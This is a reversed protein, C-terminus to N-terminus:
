KATRFKWSVRRPVGDETLLAEVQVEVDPELARAPTLVVMGKPTSLKGAVEAGAATVKMSAQFSQYPRTLTISIPVDAPVNEQGAHPYFYVPATVAHKPHVVNMWGRGVVFSCGIGVSHLSPALVLERYGVTGLFDDITTEPLPALLSIQSQRAIDRGAETFGPLSPDEQSFPMKKDRHIEFNQAVYEAHAQCARSRDVDLQVPALQAGARLQNLRQLMTRAAEAPEPGAAGTTFSWVKQFPKGDIRGALRVRYMRHAALPQKPILCVTTGQHDPYAPNAPKEPSSFWAPLVKADADLLEAQANKLPALIPFIATIPFGAKEIKPDPIPNPVEGGAPFALPVDTQDAEPYFVSRDRDIKPTRAGLFDVVSVWQGHQGRAVGVGIRDIRTELIPVRHYLTAVWADLAQMPTPDALAIVANKASAQGELTFGPLQPDETHPGLGELEKKGANRVLYIAHLRCGRSLKADLAVPPLKALKRVRNVEALLKESWLGKPDGDDETTFSWTRSWPKGNVDAEIKAKYRTNAKLALKPLLGVVNARGEPPSLLWHAAPRQQDDELFGQVNELKQAPSFHATVPFGPQADADPAESGGSFSLPVDRQDPIPYVLIPADTSPSAGRGREADVVCAWDGRVNKALGVGISRLQPHLLASRTPIRGLWGQLALDPVQFAVLAVNAAARGEASFGPLAPDEGLVGLQTKLSAHERNRVLYEAHKRCGASDKALTLKGVGVGIRLRNLQDLWTITQKEADPLDLAFPDPQNVEPPTPKKEAAPPISKKEEAPPNKKPTPLQKVETKNPEPEPAQVNREPQQWLRVAFWGGLALLVFAAAAAAGAWPWVRRRAAPPNLRVPQRCGPCVVRKGLLEDRVKLAKGCQPCSIVPMFSDGSTGHCAKIM